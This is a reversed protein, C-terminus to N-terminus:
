LKSLWGNYNRLLRMGGDSYDDIVEIQKKVFNIKIKAIQNKAINMIMGMLEDNKVGIEKEIM